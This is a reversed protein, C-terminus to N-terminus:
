GVASSKRVESIADRVVPQWVAQRFGRGSPHRVACLRVGEPPKPLHTLLAEGLVIVLQPSLDLVTQLFPGRAESWMETTPRVRASQGPFCQIFNSFAVHEWFAARAADSIWGSEGTILRQTVTFFRFRRKQGLERVVEITYSPGL